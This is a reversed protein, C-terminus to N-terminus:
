TKQEHKRSATLLIMTATLLLLTAQHKWIVTNSAGAFIFTLIIAIYPKTAPNFAVAKKAATLPKIYIFYIFLSTAFIGYSSFLNLADNHPDLLSEYPINYSEKLYSWVGPGVGFFLNDSIISITGQWVILRTIISSTIETRAAQEVSHSSLIVSDLGTLLSRGQPTFSILLYAALPLAYFAIIGKHLNKNTILITGGVALLLAFISARTGTAICTAVLVAIIIAKSRPKYAAFFTFAAVAALIHGLTNTGFNGSVLRSPDTKLLTFALSETILCLAGILLGTKLQKLFELPRSSSFLITCLILYRVQFGGMVSIHPLQSIYTTILYSSFILLPLALTSFTTNKKSYRAIGLLLYIDIHTLYSFTPIEYSTSNGMPISPFLENIANPTVLLIIPFVMWYRAQSTSGYVCALAFFIAALITILRIEEFTHPLLFCAISFILYTALTTAKLATTTNATHM